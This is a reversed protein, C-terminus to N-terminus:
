EIRIPADLKATEVLHEQDTLIAYLKVMESIAQLFLTIFALLAMTKIPARPLGNPDPSLEWYNPIHQLFLGIRGLFNNSLEVADAWARWTGDSQRMGWSTLVPNWVAWIGLMTFPILALIHGVFDIKAQTKKPLNAFWFDVRVNIGNKLIYAFGFFFILSYLYWQIEIFVNSTLRRGIFRGAYRLVVNSFGVFFTLIVLYVSVNGLRESFADIAHSVKVMIRM